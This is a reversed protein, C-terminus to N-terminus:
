AACDDTDSEHVGSETSVNLAVLQDMSDNAAPEDAVIEVLRGRHRAVTAIAPGGDRILMDRMDERLEAPM